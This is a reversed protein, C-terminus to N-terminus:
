IKRRSTSEDVDPQPLKVRELWYCNRIVVWLVGLLFSIKLTYGLNLILFVGFTMYLAFKLATMRRAPRYIWVLFALALALGSYGFKIMLYGLNHPTTIKGSNIQQESYDDPGLYNPFDDSLNIYGGLGGGFVQHWWASDFFTTIEAVRVHVSHPLLAINSGALIDLVSLLQQLKLDGAGDLPATMLHILFVMVGAIAVLGVPFRVLLFIFFVFIALLTQSGIGYYGLWYDSSIYHFVLAGFLGIIVWRLRNPASMLLLAFVLFFGTLEDLTDLFKAETYTSLKPNEIGGFAFISIKALTILACASLVLFFQHESLKRFRLAALPVSAIVLLDVIVPSIGVEFVNGVSLAFLGVICLATIVVGAMTIRVQTVLLSVGLLLFPLGPVVGNNWVNLSTYSFSSGLLLVLLALEDKKKVTWYLFGVLSFVLYLPSLGPLSSVLHVVATVLYPVVQTRRYEESRESLAASAM